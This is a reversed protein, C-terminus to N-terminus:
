KKKNHFVLVILTILEILIEILQFLLDWTVANEMADGGKRARVAGIPHFPFDGKLLFLSEGKRIHLPSCGGKDESEEDPEIIACLPFNTM